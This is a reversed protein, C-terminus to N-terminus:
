SDCNIALGVTFTPVFITVALSEIFTSPTIKSM